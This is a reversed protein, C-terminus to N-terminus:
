VSILTKYQDVFEMLVNFKPIKVTRRKENLNLEHELNTVEIAGVTFEDVVNGNIDEYHHTANVDSYKVNCYKTIAYTTQPFDNWPDYKENFLMIVWHYETTKYFKHSIIEPTDGDKAQYVDFFMDNTKLQPDLKVIRLFDTVLLRTKKDVQYTTMPFSDFFM